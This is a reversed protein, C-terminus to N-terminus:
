INFVENRDHSSHISSHIELPILRNIPRRVIRGTSIQQMASRIEGDRSTILDTILAMPWQGRSLQSDDDPLMEGARPVQSPIKHSDRLETLHENKWLRWFKKTLKEITSIALKAAKQSSHEPLARFDPDGDHDESALTLKRRGETKQLSRKVTGVMREWVGGMWSSPPHIEM